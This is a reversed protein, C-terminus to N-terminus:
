NWFVKGEMLRRATRYVTASQLAREKDYDAAVDLTGSAHHITIDGGPGSGINVCATVITGNITAAAAAALAVTVPIAKHPQGVSMARVVLMSEKSDEPASVIAIKPVSGPVNEESDALGMKVGAVRRIRDLTQGLTPHDEIEEPSLTGDVGLEDSRVFCCPNGADICTVGVGEIQDIKAETPFLKGTRSGAPNLFKLKHRLKQAMSPFTSEIIKQTNTNFIRVTIEKAGHSIDVLGSNVAYPGIAASMNGCNSSYDVDTNKIGLSVFTYDVDAYPRSSKGVVCVKSLSSIGGGMGDLQRDYPDPSGISGLFIKNWELHDAPLDNQHFIIARSTGGRYYAAPLGSQLRLQM